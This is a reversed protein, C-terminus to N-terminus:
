SNRLFGSSPSCIKGRDLWIKALDGTRCYIGLNLDLVRHTEKERIKVHPIAMPSQESDVIHSKNLCVFPIGKLCAQAGLTRECRCIIGGYCNHRRKECSKTM